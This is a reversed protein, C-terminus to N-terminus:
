SLNAYEKLFELATCKNDPLGIRWEGQISKMQASGLGFATGRFQKIIYSAGAYGRRLWMTITNTKSAERDGYGLDYFVDLAASDVIPLQSLGLRELNARYYGFGLFYIREAEKITRMALAFEKSKPEAESVIVINETAVKIRKGIVYGDDKRGFLPYYDIGGSEQWPLPGLSGHVHVIPICQMMEAVQADTKNYSHKLASFLFYELSRDYNFTIITLKNEKFEEWSTALNHYLFDYIGNDRVSFNHFIDPNEQSLL